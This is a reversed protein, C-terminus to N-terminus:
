NYHLRMYDERDIEAKLQEEEDKICKEAWERVQPRKHELLQRFCKINREHYPVTSGTWSFSGLNAHFENLVKEDDGYEDFLWMAINSFEDSTISGDDNKKFEFVPCLNAVIMPAKQPFERCFQKIIVDDMCFMPGSGFGSGSGIDNRVQFYFRLYDESILAKSFDEWIVSGYNKFLVSWVGEFNGHLFDHNLAEILKLSLKKAFVPDKDIELLHSAYHSFDFIDNGPTRDIVYDLVVQKFLPILSADDKIDSFYKFRRIFVFLSNSSDPFVDSVTEIIEKMMENSCFGINRLYCEIFSGDLEGGVYETLLRHFYALKDDECNALLRVYLEHNGSNFIEHIFDSFALRNRLAFCISYFFYKLNSIEEKQAVNLLTAFLGSVQTDKIRENVLTCFFTEFFDQSVCLDHITIYDSYLEKDLFEDVYGGFKNILTDKVVDSPKTYDVKDSFRLLLLREAFGKPSLVEKWKEFLATDKENIKKRFYDEHRVLAEYLELWENHRENIIKEILPSMFDMLGDHFWRIEYDEVIKSALPLISADEDIWSILLDRCREWYEFVEAHSPFNEEKVVTGFKEAGGSRVFDGNRFASSIADIAIKDYEGGLKKFYLITDFREQLTAQTGSLYIHFLQKLQNTANNAYYENEAISLLALLKVGDNYSDKDFCLKELAWILNRRIDDTVYTRLWEPEKNRFIGYLCSAVAVPNVSAMSLFLRSGMDSCVVKESNFSGKTLQSILEQAQPSDQMYKIRECIGEKLANYTAISSAKFKEIESVLETITDSDMDDFWKSLLMVALPFPRVNLWTGTNEIISKDFKKIVRNFLKRKDIENYGPLSTICSNNIIFNFAEKNGVPVPQFLSLSCLAKIEDESTDTDLKLIKPLLSDLSHMDYKGTEMFAEVLRVAMVPFCESMRKIERIDSQNNKEPIVSDIYKFVSDKLQDPTIVIPKCGDVTKQNYYLNTLGIIRFNCNFSDRKKIFRELESYPCNDIVLIGKNGTNDELFEDIEPRIADIYDCYYVDTRPKEENFAEYILRTKGLGSLAIIQLASIESSNVSAIIEELIPASIFGSHIENKFQQLFNKIPMISHYPFMDKHWVGKNKNYTIDKVFADDKGQTYRCVDLSQSIFDYDLILFGNRYNPDPNNTNNYLLGPATIFVVQSKDEYERVFGDYGHNHGCFYIKYSDSLIDSIDKHEFQAMWSYDHHAIAIKLDCDQINKDAHILQKRGMLIHGQDYDSFCRWSTDLLNIGVLRSDIELLLTSEFPAHHYENCGEYFDKQFRKFEATRKITCNIYQRDMFDSLKEDSDLKKEDDSNQDDTVVKRDIDHNGSVLAFRSRPLNLAELLPIIVEEKFKNLAETLSEYGDGAKDVMDGTFLVLDIPKEQNVKKVGELFNTFNNRSLQILEPSNLHFDSFHLIRM